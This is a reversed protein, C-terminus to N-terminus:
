GNGRDQVYKEGDKKNQNFEWIGFGILGVGYLGCLAESWLTYPPILMLTLSMIGLGISLKWNRM